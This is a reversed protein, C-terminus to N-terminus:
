LIRRKNVRSETERPRQWEIRQKRAENDGVAGFVSVAGKLLSGWFGRNLVRNSAEINGRLWSTEDDYRAAKAEGTGVITQREHEMGALMQSLSQEMSVPAIGAKNMQLQAKSSLYIHEEYKKSEQERTELRAFRADGEAIKIQRKFDEINSQTKSKLDYYGFVSNFLGSFLRSAANAIAWWM